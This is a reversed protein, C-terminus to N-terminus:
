VPFLSHISGLAGFALFIIPNLFCEWGTLITPKLLFVCQDELYDLMEWTMYSRCVNKKEGANVEVLKAKAAASLQVDMEPNKIPYNQSSEVLVAHVKTLGPPSLSPGLQRHRSTGPVAPSHPNGLLQGSSTEPFKGAIRLADAGQFAKSTFPVPDKFLLCIRLSLLTFWYVCQSDM